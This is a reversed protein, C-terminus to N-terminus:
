KIEFTLTAWNSEYDIDPEDCETMHITAIYWKGAKDPKISFLGKEDTMVSREHDSNNGSGSHSGYHVVHKALPKADKLLLFWLRDGKNLEYPNTQPIFEIPYALEKKYHNSREDDVQLIAKVHKSYKERAPKNSIAKLKREAIIARLEEHELYENFEDASLSIESPLTSIGALYTGGKGTKFRLYSIDDKDYYDEQSPLFQYDPGIIKASRIRDRSISNESKDFTGNFLFLESEENANLFYNDSKLFLEHSSLLVFALLLILTKKM